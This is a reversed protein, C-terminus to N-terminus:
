TWFVVYLLVGCALVCKGSKEMVVKLNVLKEANELHTAVGLMVCISVISVVPWEM